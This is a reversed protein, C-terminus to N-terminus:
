FVQLSDFLLKMQGVLFKEKLYLFGYYKVVNWNEKKKQTKINSVVGLFELFDKFISLVAGLFKSSQYAQRINQLRPYKKLTEALKVKRENSINLYAIRNINKIFHEEITQELKDRQLNKDRQSKFDYFILYYIELM